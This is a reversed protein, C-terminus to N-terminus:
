EDEDDEEDDETEKAKPKPTDEAEPENATLLNVQEDLSEALEPLQMRGQKVLEMTLEFPYDGWPQDIKKIDWGFLENFVERAVNPTIAGTGKCAIFANIMNEKDILKLGNSRFRWYKPPRGKEDTLLCHNFYEDVENREPQFVQSEAVEMAAFATARNMTSDSLGVLIRHLRYSSLTKNTCRDDYELFQGDKVKQNTLPKIDVTPSVVKVDTGSEIRESNAQLVLVQHGQKTNFANFQDKINQLSTADLNGGSVSVVLYPVGDNEFFRYNLEESERSGMVSPLQNIYRPLGYPSIANYESVEKIETAIYQEELEGKAEEGTRCDIVRPDGFEKFFVNDNGIKQVYRKFYREETIQEEVGDKTVYYTVPTPKKDKTTIRFHTAPAHRWAVISRQKTLVNSERQIEIYAHGIKERDDRVRQRFEINTYEGNPRSLLCELRAKEEDAKKQEAQDLPKDKPNTAEWYHGLSDINKKYADVCQLIVSNKFPLDALYSLPVLPRLIRLNKNEKTTQQLTKYDKDFADKIKSGKQVAKKFNKLVDSIAQTDKSTTTLMYTSVGGGTVKNVPAATKSVPQPKQRSLREKPM